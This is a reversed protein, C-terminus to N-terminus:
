FMIIKENRVDIFLMSERFSGNGIMGEMGSFKFMLEIYWPFGEVYSISNIALKNHGLQFSEKCPGTYVKLQRSMQNAKHPKISDPDEVMNEWNSKSTILDYGSAGTDWMFKYMENNMSANIMTRREKFEFPISLPSNLLSDPPSVLLHLLSHKFDIGTFIKEVLDSGITGIVKMKPKSWDIPNGYNVLRLSDAEINMQGINISIAGTAKQSEKVNLTNPYQKIISHIPDSYMLSYIAGLDFQMYFTDPIQNIHVPIFMAARDSVDSSTWLTEVTSNHGSIRLQNPPAKFSEKFFVYGGILSLTILIAAVVSIYKIVKKM